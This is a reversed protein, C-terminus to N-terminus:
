LLFDGQGSGGTGLGGLGCPCLSALGGCFGIAGALIKLQAAKLLGELLVPAEVRAGVLQEMEVLLHQEDATELLPRALEVPEAQDAAEAMEVDALLRDC